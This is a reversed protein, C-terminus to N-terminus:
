LYEYTNSQPDASIEDPMGAQELVLPKCKRLERAANVATVGCIKSRNLHFITFAGSEVDGRVVESTGLPDGFVQVSYEYQDTWYSMTEAYREARGLMCRAVHAGHSAAHQWTEERRHAGHRENFHFAVEGAAYIGEVSTRGFADVHIGEPGADIGGHLALEVNPVVGIGVVVLDARRQTGDSLAIEYGEGSREIAGLQVGCRLEVGHRAHARALFTALFPSAARALPRAGAEIVTTELECASAVAAVELGIIGAGVVLLRGNGALRAFDERLARADDLTRLYHVGPNGPPLAPLTRARSGTAILLTSYSLSSGDALRVRRAPVDIQTVAVGLRLEIRADDYFAAPRLSLNAPLADDQLVAKSLPPRDYPQAREEGFMVIRGGFGEARLAEAASVGAVGAGVIVCIEDDTLKM